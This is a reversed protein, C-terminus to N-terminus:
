ARPGRARGRHRPRAQTPWSTTSPDPRRAATRAAGDVWADAAAPISISSAPAGRRPGDRIRERGREIAAADVDHLVVECGAELALQAIGAGMTGAGVVASSAPPRRGRRPGAVTLGAQDSRVAPPLRRLLPDDPVPDARVANELRRGARAATRARSARARPRDPRGPRGAASDSGPPAIGAAALAARGAPSIRESTWPPGRVHRDVEVPGASRASGTRSRADQHARAGPLRRVDPLIEVRIPGDGPEMSVRHVIGLDVVSLM